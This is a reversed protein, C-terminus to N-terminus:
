STLHVDRSSPWFRKLFRESFGYRIYWLNHVFCERQRGAVRRQLYWPVLCCRKQVTLDGEPKGNSLFHERGAGRHTAAWMGCLSEIYQAGLM